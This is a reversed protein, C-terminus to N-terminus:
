LKTLTFTKSVLNMTVKYNGSTAVSIDDGGLDLTGNAGADGYNTGWDDNLRFKIKKGGVLPLTVSWERTGNNYSMDTDNDWGGPTADGILGWSQREATFTNDNVNLKLLYPYLTAVKLNNGATTSVKGGGADGYAVDWAKKTTIKFELSGGPKAAFNIIGEYKGDGLASMLSDATSPNWGQYDGPVYVFSILAFPTIKIEQVASYLPAIASSIESRVRMELSGLSEAPIGLALAIDNLDLGKFSKEFVNADLSFEKPGSFNNGKKDFQIVYKVGAQYGFDAPNVTIKLADADKTDKKLVITSASLTAGAAKASSLNAVAMNEQKECAAFAVTIMLLLASLSNRLKM